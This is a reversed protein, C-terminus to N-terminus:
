GRALKGRMFRWLRVMGGVDTKRWLRRCNSHERPEPWESPISPAPRLPPNEWGIPMSANTAVADFGIHEVMSWPPRVCLGGHQFHHYLWRVAWINRRQEDRAMRPLDAGYAARSVGRREAGRLKEMATEENMGHWARPWSGWVWCEARADFYPRDGVDAPTVRPHTWGTVSMVRPDNTYRRLAACIWDYTGPVCILDDEWVIFADHRSAVESVGALVNRGLGLNKEREVVHIECWDVGRLLARTEAVAEADGAGKAGDAFVHILPVGNERLCALARALHAPRAYAFLIVPITAVAQSM